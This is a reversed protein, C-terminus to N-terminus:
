HVLRIREQREITDGDGVVPEHLRTVDSRLQFWQKWTKRRKLAKFSQNIAIRTLDTKLTSVGRYSHLARYFNIYPRRVLMRPKKNGLMSIVTSAVAGDYREVLYQFAQM